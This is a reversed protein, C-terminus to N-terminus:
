VFGPFFDVKIQRKPIGMEKLIKEFATVMGHPGSIYFYREKYDPIEKQIMDATIFGVRMDPTQEIGALENVVYLTRVGLKEAPEFVDKYVIDKPTKNSFLIVVDRKENTDLLYKIQSRYPTVGIGGAILVLKKDKEKPLTFEGSLSSATLVDGPKLEHIAKKFTSSNEYFKLGMRIEPEAPSSAITFYRRNGRNDSPSHGLTWELYQGPKFPMKKDPIFVFDYIDPSLQIKEKLTLVMRFKPSVFYSFINGAVLALEPTFYLSGVHVGPSFLLGVLAGYAMQKNETPPSTLPETLMIFAFFLTPYHIFTFNATSLFSFLSVTELHGAFITFFSVLLFAYVMSERKIKRTILFGGILIIPMMYLTGIWWTASQNLFFATIAVALAAPNFIHKKHIAIIYKSAMSLVSAWIALSFYHADTFSKLPSIILVLIFATIYISEVNAPVKFVKAFIINTVQCVITIFVTSFIIYVFSYPVKGFLSLVAAFGIFITLVYLVLRYMTIKNLFNDIFNLM